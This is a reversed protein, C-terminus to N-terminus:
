GGLNSEENAEDEGKCLRKSNNGCGIVGSVEGVLLLSVKDPKATWAPVILAKWGVVEELEGGQM